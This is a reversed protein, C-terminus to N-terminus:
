QRTHMAKLCRLNFLDSILDHTKIRLSSDIWPASRGATTITHLVQTRIIVLHQTHRLRIPTTHHALIHITHIIAQPPTRVTAVLPILHLTLAAMAVTRARHHTRTIALHQTHRLRILTTPLVLSHIMRIIAQPLIALDSVQVTHAAIRPPTIEPQIHLYM